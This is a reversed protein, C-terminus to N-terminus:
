VSGFLLLVSTECISSTYFSRELIELSRFGIELFPDLLEKGYFVDVACFGIRFDYLIDSPVFGSSIFNVKLIQKNIM